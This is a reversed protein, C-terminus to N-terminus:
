GNAGRVSNPHKRRLIELNLNSGGIGRRKFSTSWNKGRDFEAGGTGHQVVVANTIGVRWKAAISRICMDADDYGYNTGFDEDFKGVAKLMQRRMYICAFTVRDGGRGNCYHIGDPIDKWLEPRSFRMFLNGCGGDILPSMIGTKPGSYVKEKLVEFTPMLLRVDDNMLIIDNHSAKAIGANVSKCFNFKNNMTIAEYGYDRDHNDRVILV